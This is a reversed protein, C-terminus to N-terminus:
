RIPSPSDFLSDVGELQQEAPGLCRQRMHRELVEKSHEFVLQTLPNWNHYISPLEELTALRRGSSEEKMGIEELREVCAAYCDAWRVESRETVLYCGIYQIEMLVAGAEEVAERRVADLSTENPELRGSPICWGRGEINALLVRDGVWPFALGAFARLPARFPAPYFQLRQRGYQGCPFRRLAM